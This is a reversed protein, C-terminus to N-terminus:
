ECCGLRPASVAISHPSPASLGLGGALALLASYRRYYGTVSFRSTVIQDEEINPPLKFEFDAAQGWYLSLYDDERDATTAIKNPKLMIEVGTNLTAVLEVDKIFAIEPEREEVRFHSRFGPFSKTETYERAQNPAKDLVKGHEIWTQSTADWSVLYPCSLGEISRVLDSFNASRQELSIVKGNVTLGAISLEPGFLYTKLLPVAHNGDNALLGSTGIRKQIQTSARMLKSWDASNTTTPWVQPVFSIKTPVLLREGPALMRSVEFSSNTLGARDSGLARLTSVSSRSGQLADINVPVDSVNEILMTDLIITPYPIEFTLNAIVEDSCGEESGASSPRTLKKADVSAYMMVFDNPWRSGAMYNLLKLMVPVTPSKDDVPDHKKGRLRRLLRNFARANDSYKTVDDPGLSRWLMMKPDAPDGSYFYKLSAPLSRTRLAEIENAAPYFLEYVGDRSGISVLAKIGDASLEDGHLAREESRPAEVRFSPPIGTQEPVAGFRDLLDTYTKFVDNEIIRPTGFVKKLGASSQKQLLTSAAGDSLRHFEVRVQPSKPDTEARCLYSRLPVIVSEGLESSDSARALDIERLNASCDAYSLTPIVVLVTAILIPRPGSWAWM